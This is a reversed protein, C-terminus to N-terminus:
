PSGCLYIGVYVHLMGVFLICRQAYLCVRACAHARACVCMYVYACEESM